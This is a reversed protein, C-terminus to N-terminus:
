PAPDGSSQPMVATVVVQGRSEVIMWEGADSRVFTAVSAPGLRLRQSVQWRPSDPTVSGPQRVRRRLWAFIAAAAVLMIAAIVVGGGLSPNAAPAEAAFRLPSQTVVASSSAVAQM